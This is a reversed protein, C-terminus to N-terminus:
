GYQQYNYIRPKITDDTFINRKKIGRLKETDIKTHESGRCNYLRLQIRTLERTDQGIDEPRKPNTM